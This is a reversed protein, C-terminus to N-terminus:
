SGTVGIVLHDAFPSLSPCSLVRYMRLMSLRINLM